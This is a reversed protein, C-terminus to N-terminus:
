LASIAENLGAIELGCRWLQCNVAFEASTLGLLLYGTGFAELFIVFHLDSRSWMGGGCAM